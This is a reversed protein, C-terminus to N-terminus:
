TQRGHNPQSPQGVIQTYVDLYDPHHGYKQSLKNVRDTLGAKQALALTKTLFFQWRDWNGLGFHFDALTNFLMTKHLQGASGSDVLALGQNLTEEVKKHHGRLLYGEASSNLILLLGLKDNRDECDSRGQNTVNDFEYITSGPDRSLASLKDRLIHNQWNDPSRKVAESQLAKDCLSSARKHFGLANYSVAESRITNVLLDWYDIAHERDFKFNYYVLRHKNLNSAEISDLLIAAMKAQYLAAGPRNFVNLVDHLFAHARAAALLYRASHLEHVLIQGLRFLARYYTRAEQPTKSYTALYHARTLEGIAEYGLWQLDRRAPQTITEESERALLLNELSDAPQEAPLPLNKAIKEAVQPTPSRHMQRLRSIYGPSAGAKAEIQGISGWALASDLIADATELHVQAKIAPEVLQM